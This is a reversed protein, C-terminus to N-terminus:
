CVMGGRWHRQQGTCVACVGRKDVVGVGGRKDGAAELWCSGGGEKSIYSSPDPRQERERRRSSRRSQSTYREDGERQSSGWDQLSYQMKVPM